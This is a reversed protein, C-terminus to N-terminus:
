VEAAPATQARAGFGLGAVCLMLLATKLLSNKM